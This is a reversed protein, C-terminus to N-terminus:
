RAPLKKLKAARKYVLAYFIMVGSLVYIAELYVLTEIPVGFFFPVDPQGTSWLYSRALYTLLHGGWACYGILKIAFPMQNQRKIHWLILGSLGIMSISYYLIAFLSRFAELFVLYSFSFFVIAFLHGNYIDGINNMRKMSFYLYYVGTLSTASSLMAGVKYPISLTLLAFAIMWCTTACIFEVTGALEKFKKNIIVATVLGILFLFTLIMFNEISHSM